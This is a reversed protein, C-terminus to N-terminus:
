SRWAADPEAAAPAGAPRRGRVDGRPDGARIVGAELLLADVLVDGAALAGTHSSAARAGSTSRGAKVAVIPKRRGVRRAVELFRRPEAIAELYLLIVRTREDTDWLELLDSATVDASNGISAFNSIGLNLQRAAELMALGLAGSQSAFAVPGEPPFAASFSANLRVSPDTNM